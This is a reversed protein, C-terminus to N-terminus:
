KRSKSNDNKKEERYVEYGLTKLDTNINNNKIIEAWSDYIPATKFEEYAYLTGITKDRVWETKDTLNAYQLYQALLNSYRTNKTLQKQNENELYTAYQESLAKFSVRKDVLWKFFLEQESLQEETNDLKPM